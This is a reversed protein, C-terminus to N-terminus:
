DALGLNWNGDQGWQTGNRELTIIEREFFSKTNIFYESM